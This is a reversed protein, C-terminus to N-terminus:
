MPKVLLIVFCTYVPKYNYAFRLFWPDWGDDDDGDCEGDGDAFKNYIEGLAWPEIKLQNKVLDYYFNFYIEGLAWPDNKLQTKVLNYYL